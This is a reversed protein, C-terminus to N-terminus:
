DNEYSVPKGNITDSSVVVGTPKFHTRIKDV